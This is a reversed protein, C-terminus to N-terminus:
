RSGTTAGAPAGAERGCRRLGDIIGTVTCSLFDLKTLAVRGAIPDGRRLLATLRRALHLIIASEMALRHSRLRAPLPAAAALLGDVGDLCRDLVARLGPTAANRQLDAESAGAEAMWDLPLYIRDLSRHDGQCDQLHNLVQLANCLADSAAWGERSEGHLDLLFRGVPSASLACYAMLDAWDAYRSKVADQKFAALLDLGHRAPVGAEALALRLRLAKAAAMPDGVGEALALAMRDLRDLKDEPALEPNDGIDDGARAFAYFAAVVPRLHRPLLVSGVPFNEDRARKGSPTELGAPAAPAAPTELSATV